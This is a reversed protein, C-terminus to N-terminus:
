VCKTLTGVSKEYIHRIMNRWLITADARWINLPDNRVDDHLYYNIPMTGDRAAEHHLALTDYEPHNAIVIFQETEDTMIYPGTQDHSALVRMQPHREFGAWRSVPVHMIDNTGSLLSSEKGDETKLHPYIGFAKHDYQKKDTGYKAYMAAMGGWCLGVTVPFDAKSLSAIQSYFQVDQFPIKDFNAGTIICADYQKPNIESISRLYLDNGEISLPEPRFYTLSVQLSSDGLLQALSRETQIRVASPMINAILIQLERIDQHQADSRSLTRHLEGYATRRTNDDYIIPM